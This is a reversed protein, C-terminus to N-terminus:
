TSDVGKSWNNAIIPHTINHPKPVGHFCVVRADEPLFLNTFDNGYRCHKKFSVVKNPFESQIRAFGHPGIISEIFTQDGTPINRINHIPRRMFEAYIHNFAEGRFVMLGSGLNSLTYFDNLAMFITSHHDILFDINGVIVTDLDIFVITKGRFHPQNFLEMKSWWGPLAHRLPIVKHVSEDFSDTSDTLCVFEYPLTTNKKIANALANVYGNDYVLGGTKLVCAVITNSM